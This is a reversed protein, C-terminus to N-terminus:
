ELDVETVHSLHSLRSVQLGFQDESLGEALQPDACAVAAILRQYWHSSFCWLLALSQVNAIFSDSDNHALNFLAKEGQEPIKPVVVHDTDIKGDANKHSVLISQYKFGCFASTSVDDKVDIGHLRYEAILGKQTSSTETADDGYVNTPFRRRVVYAIAARCLTDKWSTIFEGSYVLPRDPQYISGDNFIVCSTHLSKFYNIYVARMNNPVREVQADGFAEHVSRSISYDFSRMDTAQTDDISESVVLFGPGDSTAHVFDTGIRNFVLSKDAEMLPTFLLKELLLFPLECATYVRPSKGVPRPEVKLKASFYIPIMGTKLREYLQKTLNKVQGLGLSFIVEEVTKGYEQMLIGVGSDGRLTLIAEAFREDFEKDLDINIPALDMQMFSDKAKHPTIKDTVKCALREGFVKKTQLHDGDTPYYWQGEFDAIIGPHKLKKVNSHHSININFSGQYMAGAIFTTCKQPKKKPKKYKALTGQPYDSSETMMSKTEPGYYEKHRRSNELERRRLEDQADDRESMQNWDTDPEDIIEKLEKDTFQSFRSDYDIERDENDFTDWDGVYREYDEDDEVWIWTRSVKDYEWRGSEPGSTDFLRSAINSRDHLSGLHIGVVRGDCNFVPSGSCGPATTATHTFNYRSVKEVTGLSFLNESGAGVINVVSKLKGRKISKVGLRSALAPSVRVRAIDNKDLWEVEDSLKRLEVSSTGNSLVVDPIHFVHCCSWLYGDCIFARGVVTSGHMVYLVKNALAPKSTPISLPQKCEKGLRETSGNPPIPYETQFKRIVGSSTTVTMLAVGNSVVTEIVKCLEPEFPDSPKLQTTVARHWLKVRRLLEVLVRLTLRTAFYLIRVAIFLFLVIVMFPRAPELSVEVFHM